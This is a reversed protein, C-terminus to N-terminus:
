NNKSSMKQFTIQAQNSQLHKSWFGKETRQLQTQATADPDLSCLATCGALKPVDPEHPHYGSIPSQGLFTRNFGGCFTRDFGLPEISGGKPGRFPEVAWFWLINFRECRVGGGKWTLRKSSERNSPPKQLFTHREQCHHESHWTLQQAWYRQTNKTEKPTVSSEASVGKALVGRKQTGQTECSRFVKRSATGSTRPSSFKLKQFHFNCHIKPLLKELLSSPGLVFFDPGPRRPIWHAGFQTLIPLRWGWFPSPPSPSSCGGVLMSNWVWVFFPELLVVQLLSVSNIAPCARNPITPESWKTQQEAQLFLQQFWDPLFWIWYFIVPSMRGLMFQWGWLFLQLRFFM